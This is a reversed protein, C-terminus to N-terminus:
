AKVSIHLMFTSQFPDGGDVLIFLSPHSGCSLSCTVTLARPRLMEFLGLLFNKPSHSPTSPAESSNQDLHLQQSPTKSTSVVLPFWESSFLLTWPPFLFLRYCEICLLPVNHYVRFSFLSLFFFMPSLYKKEARRLCAGRGLLM